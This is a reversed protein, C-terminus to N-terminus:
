VVQFDVTSAKAFAPPADPKYDGRPLKGFSSEVKSKVEDQTVNGVVVVLMRSTQLLKAHHAKLDAATLSKVSEVTGIPSNFYPHSAYLLKNSLLAVSSEPSDNQQRLANIIQDKVLAIEKEEFSPNLIMDALLQWSRDFNQRVCRMAMVSYDYGSAADVVTGMRALERNIESKGFNKTGESAVEFLVSEIGANKESINRTGGRFYVQVAVVGNGTVRRHITKLGNATVFDTTSGNAAASTRAPLAAQAFTIIALLVNVVVAGATTKWISKLNQNCHNFKM